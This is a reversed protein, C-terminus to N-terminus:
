ISPEERHERKPIRSSLPAPARLLVTTSRSLSLSLSPSRLPSLSRCPRCIFSLVTASARPLSLAPSCVPHPLLVSHSVTLPLFLPYKSPSQNLPTWVPVYALDRVNRTRKLHYSVGDHIRQCNIVSIKQRAFVKLLWIKKVVRFSLYHNVSLFM